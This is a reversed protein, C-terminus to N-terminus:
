VCCSEHSFFFLSVYRIMCSCVLGLSATEDPVENNETFTLLILITESILLGSWDSLNYFYLNKKKMSRASIIFVTQAIDHFIQLGKTFPTLNKCM